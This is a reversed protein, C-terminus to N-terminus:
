HAGQRKAVEGHLSDYALATLIALFLTAFCFPPLFLMIDSNELSVFSGVIVLGPFMSLFGLACAALAYPWLAALFSRAKVSVRTRWGTLPRGIKTAASGLIIGLLPPGFGGGVLLLLISILILILGGHKREIFVVAWLAFLLSVLVALIGTVLLNPILTMAPEGALIRYAEADPWSEIVISEPAVNGQLIEGVGHEIGALGAIAGMTSVVIRTASKM